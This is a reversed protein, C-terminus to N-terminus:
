AGRRNKELAGPVKGRFSARVQQKLLHNGFRPAAVTALKETSAEQLHRRLAACPTPWIAALRLQPSPPDHLNSESTREHNAAGIATETDSIPQKQGDSGEACCVSVVIVKSLSNTDEISKM